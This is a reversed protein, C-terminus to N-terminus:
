GDLFIEPCAAPFRIEFTNRMIGTARRTISLEHHYGRRLM